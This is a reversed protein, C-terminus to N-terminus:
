LDGFTKEFDSPEEKPKNPIAIKARSTPSFGFDSAVKAMQDFLTKKIKKDTEIIYNAYADCYLALSIVDLNTMIGAEKLQKSLDQFKAKAQSSLWTPAKVKDSGVNLREEALKRAEIQKKSLRSKNGDVLHMAITKAKGAM